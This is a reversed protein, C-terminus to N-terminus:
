PEDNERSPKKEMVPDGIKQIMVFLVSCFFASLIIALGMRMLDGALWRFLGVGTFLISGTNLCIHLGIAAKVSGYKEYVYCLLIGLLFAYVTQIMTLHTVSFFVSSWLAAYYFGKTERYRRYLVGRFMMEEAVPIIIGVGVVQVFIPAAYTSQVSQQYSNSNMALQAVVSLCTVGISGAAGMLILWLYNGASVKQRQPIGAQKEKKRDLRFLSVTLILTFLATVGNIETAYKLVLELGPQMTEMYYKNVVDTYNMESAHNMVLSLYKAAYPLMVLMSVIIEAVLQIVWYGLLPGALHWFPNQKKKQNM